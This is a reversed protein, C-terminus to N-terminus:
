LTKEPPTLKPEDMMESPSQKAPELSGYEASNTSNDINGAKVAKEFEENLYAETLVGKSNTTTNYSSKALQNARAQTTMIKPYPKPNLHEHLWEPVNGIADWKARDEKKIYINVRGDYKM